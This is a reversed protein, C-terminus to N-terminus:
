FSYNVPGADIANDGQGAGAVAVALARFLRVQVHLRGGCTAQWM